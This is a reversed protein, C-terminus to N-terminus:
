EGREVVVVSLTYNGFDKGIETTDPGQNFEMSYELRAPFPFWSTEQNSLEESTYARGIDVGRIGLVDDLLVEQIFQGGNVRDVGILRLGISLDLRGNWRSVLCKAYDLRLKWLKFKLLTGTDNSVPVLEITCATDTRGRHQIQRVLRVIGISCGNESNFTARHAKAVDLENHFARHDAESAKSEKLANSRLSSDAVIAELRDPDALPGGSIYFDDRVIRASYSQSYKSAEHSLLSDLAGKVVKEATSTVPALLSKLPPTSVGHPLKPLIALHVSEGAVCGSKPSNLLHGALVYAGFCLPVCVVAAILFKMLIM